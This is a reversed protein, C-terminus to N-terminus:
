TINKGDCRNKIKLLYLVITDKIKTFYLQKRNGPFIMTIFLNQSGKRTRQINKHSWTSHHAYLYMRVNRLCYVDRGKQLM